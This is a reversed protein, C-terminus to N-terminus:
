VCIPDIKKEKTFNNAQKIKHQLTSRAVIEPAGYVRLVGELLLRTVSLEQRIRLTRKRWFHTVNKKRNTEQLFKQLIRFRGIGELLM